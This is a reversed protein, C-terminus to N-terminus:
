YSATVTYGCTGSGDADANVTLDGDIVVATSGSGSPPSHNVTHTVGSVTCSTAASTITYTSGGGDVTVDGSLAGTGDIITGSGSDISLTDATLDFVTAGTTASQVTGYNMGTDESITITKLIDIAATFPEASVNSVTLGLIMLAALIKKM